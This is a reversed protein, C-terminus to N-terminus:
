IEILEQGGDVAEVLEETVEVVEVGLLLRLHLVVRRFLLKGLEVLLKPRAAHQVGPRGGLVVGGLLRAPAPDALLLISSVPGSVLLAHLGCPVASGHITAPTPLAM